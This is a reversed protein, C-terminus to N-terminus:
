GDDDELLLPTGRGSVPDLEWGITRTATVGGVPDRKGQPAIALPITDGEAYDAGPRPAYENGTIVWTRVGHERRRLTAETRKDLETDEDVVTAADLGTFNVREEWVPWGAAVLDSVMPDTMPRSDGSGESTGVLHTAGKGEAYSTSCRYSEIVGTGDADLDFLADPRYIGIKPAIEITKTFARHTANAWDLVIRWEPGGDAAMLENAADLVKRDELSSYLQDSVKGCPAIAIEFGFNDAAPAVLLALAYADDMTGDLDPVFTRQLCEELTNGNVPVTTDGADHGTVIWGQTPRDDLTLVIMTKGDVLLDAWDNPTDDDLVPLSFTNQEVRATLKKITGGPDLPLDALIVGTVIDALCWRVM